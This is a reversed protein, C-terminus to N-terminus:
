HPLKTRLKALTKPWQANDPDLTKLQELAAIAKDLEVRAAARDHNQLLLEGITERSDAVDGLRALDHPTRALLEETIAVSARYEAIAAVVDKKALVSALNYHAVAVDNQWGANTADHAALEARIALCVRYAAIADDWNQALEYGHGVKEYGMALDRRWVANTGDLAELKTAIELQLKFEALAGANDKHQELIEGIGRHSVEVDRLRDTHTPDQAVLREQIALAARYHPLAEDPKGQRRLTKGLNSHTFALIAQWDANSPDRAALKNNIQLAAELEVLAGPFDGQITLLEGIETHSGSLDRQWDTNSPDRAGLRERIALAARHERLGADTDEHAALLDGLREHGVSVDRERNDSPALQALRESIALSARYEALAETFKGQTDLMDAIKEHSVSVDRQRTLDDPAAAALSASIALDQRYEDLAATTDGQTALATGLHSHRISLDRQWSANTPDAAVLGVTEALAARYQVIADATHGQALLVDGLSGLAVAHERRDALTKSDRREYYVTAKKAVSDLLDLKGIPQLKERLDGLMFTMLDEADGRNQVAARRQEDAAHEAVLIQHISLVGFGVLVALAIAIVTVAARHRRLWRRVLQGASYRHVSVLQGTQFRRLDHALERATRYRDDAAFAMAKAVIALLDAPVDPQIAALAPVDGSVVSALVEESSNGLVPARGSLVHFLMAGLAYVDAREDVSEGLAQEPPMYAPTGIVTGLATLGPDDGGPVADIDEATDLDKALGWDIVVTEGFDGVLVNRPKLDRHIVRESHAYAIADAVALVNPLLAIREELTKAGAVVEALSRGKVLQMAFFPEGSPWVGAEHLQVISPHQLRATIKAEREFRKATDGTKVFTEKLAVARGLRRDRARLIRGMGGRAIEDGVVYHDPDVAVLGEHDTPAPPSFTGLNGIVSACTACGDLHSELHKLDVPSLGGEMMMVLDDDTPCPALVDRPPM